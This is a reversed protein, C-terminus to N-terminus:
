HFFTDVVVGRMEEGWAGEMEVGDVDLVVGVGVGVGEVSGVAIGFIGPIFIDMDMDMSVLVGVFIGVMVMLM